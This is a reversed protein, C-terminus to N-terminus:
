EVIAPTTSLARISRRILEELPTDTGSEKLALEVARDAQTRAYGLSVLASQADKALRRLASSGATEVTLKELTLKKIKDRLELVLRGATKSGIGPIRALSKGDDAAVCAALEEPAMSGLVALASKPGIGNVTLLLKFMEREEEQVFGYLLHADERVHLYTFVKVPGASVALSAAIRAPMHIEYGVGNVDLVVTSDAVGVIKGSLYSYM